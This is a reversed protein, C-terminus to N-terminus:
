PPLRMGGNSLIFGIDSCSPAAGGDQRARPRSPGSGTQAVEEQSIEAEADAVAEKVAALLMM